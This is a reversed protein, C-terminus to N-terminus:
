PEYKLLNLPECRICSSTDDDNGGRGFHDPVAVCVIGIAPVAIEIVEGTKSFGIGHQHQADIAAADLWPKEAPIFVFLAFDPIAYAQPGLGRRRGKPDIGRVAGIMESAFLINKVPIVRTLLDIGPQHYM